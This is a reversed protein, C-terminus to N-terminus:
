LNSGGCRVKTKLIQTFKIQRSYELFQQSFQQSSITARMKKHKLMAGREKTREESFTSWPGEHKRYKCHSRWSCNRMVDQHCIKQQEKQLCQPPWCCTIILLWTLVPAMKNGQRRKERLEPRDCLCWNTRWSGMEECPVTQTNNSIYRCLVYTHKELHLSYETLTFIFCLFRLQSCLFNQLRSQINPFYSLLYNLNTSNLV